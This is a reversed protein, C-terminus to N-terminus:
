AEVEHPTQKSIVIRLVQHWPIITGEKAYHIFGDEAWYSIKREAETRASNVLITGRDRWANGYVVTARPNAGLGVFTTITVEGVDVKEM